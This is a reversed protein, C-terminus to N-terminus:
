REVRLAERPDIRTTSRAAISTALMAVGLLIAAVVGLTVADSPSVGYLLAAITRNTLLAGSAGAVLGVWTIALGRRLVQRRVDRPSAGLAQRVGIERTRQRVATMMTGFLGIATLALAALAFVLLLFANLRPQALPAALYSEFTGIRSLAVAPDAENIARRLTPIYEASATSTRIALTTPAFPFITQRLPFYISGRAERLERYRADRVVGVVTFIEELSRGMRLRKGLADAGPWYHEATAASLVVVNPAGERDQDTFGRGRILPIGLTRFYGPSVVDMNFMPNAAIDDRSQGEAAPRGDWGGGFPVSVVHSISHVGPVSELQRLLKDLLALQREKTDFRDARVALEAILLDSPELALDVRELKLLSRSVLAAASLVLLALAIQLAVLGESLLRSGRGATQRADARLTQQLETRSTIIAPALAFLLTALATLSLAGALVAANVGIESARPVGDPALAVFGRVAAAAVAIGLVGGALALLGNELLLQAIIRSRGAGLASRVAIERVRTLGRIMLLNAVNSCTILLLLAAAIAFALLAPKADGLILQPLEHAVGRLTRQLNTADKRQYFATIEERASRASAGPALRGLVHLAVYQMSSEPVSPVVPAWFDAGRPFDIGPPMVGVVTYVTGSHHMTVRRGIVARDGAFHRRWMADSLVIVPASGRVDDTPRLSRGLSPTVGLVDFFEGSVLAGRSRTLADGDRILTPTAGEYLVFAVSQLARTHQAFLRADDMGLPYNTKDGGPLQGWLVVIRDQDRVPLQRILLAEAVTFVATALGIGLALTLVASLTFGRTRRLGRAAITISQLRRFM